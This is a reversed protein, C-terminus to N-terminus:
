RWPAVTAHPHLDFWRRAAADEGTAAVVGEFTYGSRALSARRLDNAGFGILLAVALNLAFAVGDPLGIAQAAFDAALLVVLFLAAALWMRNYLAWLVSIFFAPWCFGEKVLVAGSDLEARGPRVHVTYIRM